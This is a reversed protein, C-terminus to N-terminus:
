HSFGLTLSRHVSGTVCPLFAPAVEPLPSRLAVHGDLGTEEGIFLWPPVQLGGAEPAVASDAFSDREVVFPFYM